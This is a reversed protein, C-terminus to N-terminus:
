HSQKNVPQSVSSPTTPKRKMKRANKEYQRPLIGCIGKLPTRATTLHLHCRVGGGDPRVFVAALQATDTEGNASHADPWVFVAVVGGFLHAM